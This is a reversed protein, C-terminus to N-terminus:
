VEFGRPDLGNGNRARSAVWSTASTMDRERLHAKPHHLASPEEHAHVDTRGDDREWARIHLQRHPHERSADYFYRRANCDEGRYRYSLPWEPEYSQRAVRDRFEALTMDVTRLRNHLPKSTWFWRKRVEFFLRRVARWPLGSLPLRGAKRYRRGAELLGTVLTALATALEPNSAAWIALERLITQPQM